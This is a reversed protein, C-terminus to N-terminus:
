TVKLVGSYIAELLTMLALVRQDEFRQEWAKHGLHHLGNPFDPLHLSYHLPIALFDTTKGGLPKLGHGVM